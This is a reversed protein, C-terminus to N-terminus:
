FSKVMRLYSLVLFMIDLSYFWNVTMVVKKAAWFYEWPSLLVYVTKKLKYLFPFTFHFCTKPRNGGLILVRQASLLGSATQRWLNEPTLSYLPRLSKKFCLLCKM